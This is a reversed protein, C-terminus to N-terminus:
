ALGIAVNDPCAWVDGLPQTIIGNKERSAPFITKSVRAYSRENLPIGNEAM